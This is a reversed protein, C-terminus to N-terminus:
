PACAGVLERFHVDPPNSFGGKRLPPTTLSFPVWTIVPTGDSAGVPRLLPGVHLVGCWCGFEDSFGRGVPLVFRVAEADIGVKEELDSSCM